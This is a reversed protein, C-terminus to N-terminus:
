GGGGRSIRFLGQFHRATESNVGMAVLTEESAAILAGQEDPELDYGDLADYTQETLLALYAEDSIARHIVTNVADRSM